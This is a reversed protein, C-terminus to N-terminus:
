VNVALLDPPPPQIAHQLLPGVPTWCAHWFSIQTGSGLRWVVGNALIVSGAKLGRLTSSANHYKIASVELITNSKLYKHTVVRTWLNFLSGICNLLSSLILIMPRNLAM